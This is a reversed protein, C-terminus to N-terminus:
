EWVTEAAAYDRRYVEENVTVAYGPLDPLTYIGQAFRLASTDYVDFVIPDTEAMFFNPIAAGLHLIVIYGFQWGWNHPACLAGHQEALRALRFWETPGLRGMDAQVVDFARAELYPIFHRHDGASEGDAVLTKLGRDRLFRKFELCQEVQEPFMEEAFLIDQDSVEGLLRKAGALDYGNNADIGIKCEPGAVRRVAKIVEVDRRFGEEPPMWKHGRGVKLKFARHGRKMSQEIEWEIRAVGQDPHLIDAFYISGDYAPVRTSGRGGWLQYLPKGLLKAILDWLPLEIRRVNAVGDADVIGVTEDYFALPDRGIMAKPVDGADRAVGIGEHGSDTFIRMLNRTSTQGHDDLRANKGIKWPRRGTVTASTIRTIRVDRAGQACARAALGGLVSASAQLFTRRNM